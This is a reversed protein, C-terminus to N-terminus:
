SAAKSLLLRFLLFEPREQKSINSTQFSLRGHPHLVRVNCYPLCEILILRSGSISTDKFALFGCTKRKRLLSVLVCRANLLEKTNCKTETEYLNCLLESIRAM